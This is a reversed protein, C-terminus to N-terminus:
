LFEHLFHLFCAFSELVNTFAFVVINNLKAVSVVSIYSNKKLNGICVMAM